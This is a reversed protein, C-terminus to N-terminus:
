CEKIFELIQEKTKEGIIRKVENNNDDVMIIVPLKEGINYKEIIEEDLDYDYEEIKLKPFEKKIEQWIPRSVLCSPCWVASIKLIKM